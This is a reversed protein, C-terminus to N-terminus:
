AEKVDTIIPPFSLAGIEYTYYIEISIENIDKILNKDIDFYNITNWVISSDNELNGVSGILIGNFYVKYWHSAIRYIVIKYNESNIRDFEKKPIEMKYVITERADNSKIQYTLNDKKGNSFFDNLFFKKSKKSYIILNSYLSISFICFLAIVLVGIIIVKIRLIRKKEM